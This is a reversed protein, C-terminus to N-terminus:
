EGGQKLGALRQELKAAQQRDIRLGLEGKAYAKALRQISWPDDLQVGRNLWDRVTEYDIRVGMEGEEYAAAMVHIAPTYGKNASSTFLELAQGLDQPIGDGEAFMGALNFEAEADGTAAAKRYWEIAEENQESINLLYALRNQAPVYGAEAANRYYSIATVIDSQDFAKEAQTVYYQVSEAALCTLPLLALLGAILSRSSNLYLHRMM